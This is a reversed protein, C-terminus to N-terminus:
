LLRCNQTELAMQRVLLAVAQYKSDFPRTEPDITAALLEVQAMVVDFKTEDLNSAM